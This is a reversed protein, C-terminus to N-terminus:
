FISFFGQKKLEFSEQNPSIEIKTVIDNKCTHHFGSSIEYEQKALNYRLVASCPKSFCVYYLIDDQNKNKYKTKLRYKKDLYILHKSPLLNLSSVINISKESM